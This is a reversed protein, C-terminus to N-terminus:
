ECDPAVYGAGWGMGLWGGSSGSGDGCASHLPHCLPPPESGVECLRRRRTVSPPIPSACPLVMRREKHWLWASPHGQWSPPWLGGGLGAEDALSYGRAGMWRRMTEGCTGWGEPLGPCAGDGCCGQLPPRAPGWLRPFAPHCTPLPVTPTLDCLDLESAKRNLM